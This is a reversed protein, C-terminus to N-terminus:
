PRHAHLREKLFRINAAVGKENFIGSGSVLVDAGAEVALDVTEEHVGGDVQLLVPLRLRDITERLQRVKPLVAPIFEQGSFGPNVTMLLVMDVEELIYDLCNLATAPNLSVTARAGLERIRQLTRHLHVAAEVHVGLWDAGAAVFQELYLDPQAIM